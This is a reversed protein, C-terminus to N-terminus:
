QSSLYCKKPESSFDLRKDRVSCLVFDVKKCIDVKVHMHGLVFMIPSNEEIGHTLTEDNHTCMRCSM